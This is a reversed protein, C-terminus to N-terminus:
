KEEGNNMGAYVGQHTVIYLAQKDSFGEKVLNKYYQMMLKAVGPYTGLMAPLVREIQKKALQYEVEEHPKM